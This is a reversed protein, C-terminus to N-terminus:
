RLAERVWDRLLLLWDTESNGEGLKLGELVLAPTLMPLSESRELPAYTRDPQLKGFWLDGTKVDFRWVEPVGLAAYIPLKRESDRSNDIEIALDPPPDVGLDITDKDRILHEHAFYFSTDPEKGAGKKKGKVHRKLTTSGTCASPIKFEVVVTTILQTLRHGTRDHIYEPSMLELTGNGYSMRVRRSDDAKRLSLYLSWPIDDLVIRHPEPLTSSFPATTKPDLTTSM